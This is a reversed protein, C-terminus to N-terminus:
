LTIRVTMVSRPSISVGESLSVDTKKQMESSEGSTSFVEVSKVKKTYKEPLRIDAITTNFSSNVLVLLINKKKRSRFGAAVTGNLDEPAETAIVSDGPRVFNSFQGFVTSVRDDSGPEIWSPRYYTCITKGNRLDKWAMRAILLGTQIDGRRSPTWDYTFGDVSAPLCHPLAEVANDQAQVFAAIKQKKADPNVSVSIRTEGAWALACSLLAIAIALTKKM